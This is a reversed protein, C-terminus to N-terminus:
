RAEDALAAYADVVRCANQQWSHREVARRRANAGLERRLEPAAALARLGDGLGAADGPEALWATVGHELVDGIQGLRSAIIAKGAAMYEFLKTPSGFFEVGGPLPVHPSALIDCADLYAPVENPSVEGALTTRALLGAERLTNRTAALEVGDGVLLLRAGPVDDAIRAFARALVPAGHWPGFSGVFGVVLEEDLIRHRRRVDVGGGAAFRRADVGNPNVVIREPDVGREMLARRDVQSVVVIRAAAAIVSNECAALRKQLPTKNWYQGAFQESGNYELFLPRGTLRALLPGALSFRAHRQYIADVRLAAPLAACIMAADAGAAASAPIAKLSRPTTAVRWRCPPEPEAAATKAIAAGTTYAEVEVGEARLARIVEHSHTVSGGVAAESGVVPRLYVLKKLDPRRAKRVRARGAVAIALRQIPLVAASAALQTVAFPAVRALYPLLRTSVVDERDLDVLAVCKPRGVLAILPSLAYGIERSPPAGVVVLRKYRRNRLARHGGNALRILPLIELEAPDVLRTVLETARAIGGALPVVLTESRRQPGKGLETV